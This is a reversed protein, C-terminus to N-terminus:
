RTQSSFILITLHQHHNESHNCSSLSAPAITWLSKPEHNPDSEKYHINKRKVFQTKLQNITAQTTPLLSSRSLGTIHLSPLWLIICSSLTTFPFRHKKIQFFHHYRAILRSSSILKSSFTKSQLM